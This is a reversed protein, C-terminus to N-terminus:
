RWTRARVNAPNSAGTRSRGSREEDLGFTRDLSRVVRVGFAVMLVAFVALFSGFMAVPSDGLLWTLVAYVVALAGVVALNTITKM